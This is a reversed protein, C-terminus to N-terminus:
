YIYIIPMAISVSIFLTCQLREKFDKLLKLNEGDQIKKNKLLLATRKKMYGECNELPLGSLDPMLRPTDPAAYIQLLSAHPPPGETFGLM